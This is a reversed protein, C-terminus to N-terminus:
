IPGACRERSTRRQRPSNLATKMTASETTDPSTLLGLNQSHNSTRDLLDFFFAGDALRPM